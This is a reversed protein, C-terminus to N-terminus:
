YPKSRHARTAAVGPDSAEVTAAINSSTLAPMNPSGPNPRTDSGTCLGGSGLMSTLHQCAARLSYLLGQFDRRQQEILQRQEELQRRLSFVEAQLRKVRRELNDVHCGAFAPVPRSPRSSPSAMNRALPFVRSSHQVASYVPRSDQSPSQLWLATPCFDFAMVHISEVMLSPMGLSALGAQVVGAPQHRLNQLM